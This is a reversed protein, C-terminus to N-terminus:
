APEKMRWAVVVLWVSWALLTVYGLLTPLTNAPAFGVTGIVWGQVLYAIGSLAMLYGIPRPLRRTAVIATGLLVLALGFMFSFYSRMGWELWRVTEASAFRVAKEAGTAAVWADAAQKLAVGDVAQLVAYLALAVVAFVAGFRTPWGRWDSAVGTFYALTLLGALVLAMAVFQGLHVLTWVGSGAYVTFAAVHDNAGQRVSDAHFFGALFTALVGALSLAAALRLVSREAM